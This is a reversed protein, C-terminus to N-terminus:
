KRETIRKLRMTHELEEAEANRSEYLWNRRTQRYSTVVYVVFHFVVAGMGIIVLAAIAMLFFKEGTM